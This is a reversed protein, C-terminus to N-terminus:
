EGTKKDNFERMARLYAEKQIEILEERQAQLRKARKAASKAKLKEIKEAIHAQELLALEEKDRNDCYVNLANKIIKNYVASGDSDHLKMSILKKTVCISIGQELSFTDGDCVTAKETTGDAFYVEVCKDNYVRVDSVKPMVYYLTGNKKAFCNSGSYGMKTKCYMDMKENEKENKITYSEWPNIYPALLVSKGVYQRMKEQAAMIGKLSFNANTTTPEFCNTNHVVLVNEGSDANRGNILDRIKKHTEPPDYTCTGDAKLMIAKVGLDSGNVNVFSNINM